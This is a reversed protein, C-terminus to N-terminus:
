AHSAPKGHFACGRIGGFMRRSTLGGQAAAGKEDKRDLVM